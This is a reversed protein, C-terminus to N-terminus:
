HKPTLAKERFLLVRLLTLAPSCAGPTNSLQKCKPSKRLQILSSLSTYFPKPKATNSCGQQMASVNPFYAALVSHLESDFCLFM